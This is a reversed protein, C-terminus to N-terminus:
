IYLPSQFGHAFRLKLLYTDAALEWATCAYTMVSRVPPKHLTLKINASLRENKFLPYIRIFTRFTKAETMEIHLRWTINKDFIVGLYKEHNLFPINECLNNPTLIVKRSATPRWDTRRPSLGKSFWSWYNLKGVSCKRNYDKHLMRESSLIPKDNVTAAPGWWCVWEQTRTRRSEHGYKVTESELSEWVLDEYKYGGPVPHGMIVEPVPNGKRRRRRSAPCCHLYEVGGGCSIRFRRVGGWEVFTVALAECHGLIKKIIAHINTAASRYTM